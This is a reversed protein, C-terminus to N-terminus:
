YTQRADAAPGPGQTLRPVLEVILRYVESERWTLFLTLFLSM